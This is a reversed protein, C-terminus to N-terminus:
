YRERDVLLATLVYSIVTLVIAGWVATWFGAIYFGPVLAATLNLMLGNIVLTLLGLTLINLPLSLIIVIPRVIANVIGLVLAAIALSQTSTISIGQVLYETVLWLGVGNFLVRLLFKNPM